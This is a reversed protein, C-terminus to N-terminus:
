RRILMMKWFNEKAEVHFCAQARPFRSRGCGGLTPHRGLAELSELTDIKRGDKLPRVGKVFALDLPHSRVVSRSWFEFDNIVADVPVDGEVGRGHGDDVGRLKLSEPKELLHSCTVEDKGCRCVGSKLM